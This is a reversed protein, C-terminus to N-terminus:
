LLDTQPIQFRLCLVTGLEISSCVLKSKLPPSVFLKRLVIAMEVFGDLSLM